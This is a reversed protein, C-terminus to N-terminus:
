TDGYIANTCKKAKQVKIGRTYKRVEKPATYTANPLLRFYLGTEDWNYKYKELLNQIEIIRKQIQEGYLEVSKGINRKRLLGLICM